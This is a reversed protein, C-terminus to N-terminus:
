KGPKGRNEILFLYELHPSKSESTWEGTWSMSSMVHRHYDVQVVDVLKGHRAIVSRLDSATARGGSSYSLIIWTARTSSLLREIQEM